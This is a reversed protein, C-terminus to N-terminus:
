VVAPFGCGRLSSCVHGDGGVLVMRVDEEEEEWFLLWMIFNEAESTDM